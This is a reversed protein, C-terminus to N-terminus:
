QRRTKTLKAAALAKLAKLNDSHVVLNDHLSPKGTLSKSKVPKLEHYPM